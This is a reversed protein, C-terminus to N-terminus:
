DLRLASLRAYLCAMRHALRPCPDAQRRGELRSIEVGAPRGRMPAPYLIPYSPPPLGLLLVLVVHIIHPGGRALSMLM